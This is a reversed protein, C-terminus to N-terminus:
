RRPTHRSASWQLYEWLMSFKTVGGAL